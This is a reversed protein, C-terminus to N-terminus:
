RCAERWADLELKKKLADFNSQNAQPCFSETDGQYEIGWVPKGAQVFPLLTDCEKFQVCEENWNPFKTSM